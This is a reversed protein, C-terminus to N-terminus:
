IQLYYILKSKNQNYGLNYEIEEPRMPNERNFRMAHLVESRKMNQAHFLKFITNKRIFNRRNVENKLRELDMFFRDKKILQGCAFVKLRSEFDVSREFIEEFAEKLLKRNYKRVKFNLVGYFNFFEPRSYAEPIGEIEYGESQNQAFKKRFSLNKPREQNFIEFQPDDLAKRTDAQNRSSFQQSMQQGNEFSNFNSNKTDTNQENEQEAEGQELNMNLNFLKETIEELMNNFNGVSQYGDTNQSQQGSKFVDQETGGFANSERRQFDSEENGSLDGTRKHGFTTRTNIRGEQGESTIQEPFHEEEEEQQTTEPIEQEANYGESNIIQHIDEMEKNLQIQLEEILRHSNMNSDPNEHDIGPEETQESRQSAFASAHTNSMKALILNILQKLMKLVQQFKARHAKETEGEGEHKVQEFYKKLMQMLQTLHTLSEMGGEFGGLSENENQGEDKLAKQILAMKANIDNTLRNPDIMEFSSEFGRKKSDPNYYANMQNQRNGFSGEFRNEKKSEGTTEEGGLRGALNGNRMERDAKEKLFDQQEEIEYTPSSKKGFEARGAGFVIIEEFVSRTMDRFLCGLISGMLKVGRKRKVGSRKNRHEQRKRIEIERWHQKKRLALLGTTMKAWRGKIQKKMEVYDVISDIAQRKRLQIMEKILSLLIKTRPKVPNILELMDLIMFPKQIKRLRIKGVVKLLHCMKREMNLYQDYYEINIMKNPDSLYINSGASARLNIDKRAKFNHVEGFVKQDQLRKGERLIRPDIPPKIRSSNNSIQQSTPGSPFDESM